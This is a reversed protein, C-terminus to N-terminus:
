LGPVPFRVFDPREFRVPAGGGTVAEGAELADSLKDLRLIAIGRGGYSEGVAGIQRDGVRVAAGGLVGFGGEYIVPLARTRATGRHEM